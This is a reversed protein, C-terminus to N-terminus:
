STASGGGRRKITEDVLQRLQRLNVPKALYAIVGYRGAEDAGAPTGYGTMVIVPTTVGNSRLSRLLMIGSADPLRMDLLILDPPHEAVRTLAETANSACDVRYLSELFEKLVERVVDNDDVVLVRSGHASRQAILTGERSSPRTWLNV